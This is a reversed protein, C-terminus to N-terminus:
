IALKICMSKVYSKCTVKHFTIDTGIINTLQLMTYSINTTLKIITVKIDENM